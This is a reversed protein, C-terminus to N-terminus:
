TMNPWINVPRNPSPLASDSQAKENQGAHEAHVQASVFFASATRISSIM